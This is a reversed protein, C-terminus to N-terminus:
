SLWIYSNTFKHKVKLEESSTWYRHWLHWDHCEELWAGNWTFDDKGTGALCFAMYLGPSGQRGGGVTLNNAGSIYKPGLTLLGDHPSYLCCPRTCFSLYLLDSVREFIGMLFKLNLHASITPASLDQYVHAPSTLTHFSSNHPLLFWSFCILTTSPPQLRSTQWKSHLQAPAPAISPVATVQRGWSGVTPGKRTRHVYLRVNVM